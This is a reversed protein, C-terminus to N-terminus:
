TKPIVNLITRVLEHSIAPRLKGNSDLPSPSLLHAKLKNTQDPSLKGNIKKKEDAKIEEEEEEDDYVPEFAIPKFLLACPVCLLVVGAYILFVTKWSFTVILYSIIKSFVFTGVGAGCVTIGTALSRLREFYMTVIMIAPCYMLGFGFGMVIGVSITLYAM